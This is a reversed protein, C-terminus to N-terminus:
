RPLRVIPGPADGVAIRYRGPGPLTIKYRQTTGLRTTAVTRWRGDRKSQLKVPTGPGAGWADGTVRPRTIPVRAIRAGPSAGGNATKAPTTTTSPTTSPPAPETTTPPLEVTASAGNFTMWTDRLAFAAKLQDGTVVTNGGTGVVTAKVIRPSTGRQNVVIKRLSGKVLSGLRSTATAMSMRIPGWRHYPSLDDYPDDVGVLYPKPTAGKWVNEVNETRGGSTSFFYTTIPDGDYTMVEGATANAAKNTQPTEAAVGRYVQSRTDSYLDYGDNKGRETTIAYGRTAVAQAELAEAPWSPIAENGIVGAVYQELGVANIALLGGSGPRFELWGRYSGNPVGNGATGLLKVPEDASNTVQLPADFTAVRRGASNLLDVRSGHARAGYTRAPNLKKTGANTVNTFKPTSTQQLLVRIVDNTDTRGLETGQFYHQLIAVHDWGHEAYGAAGYQSMGIGHGFGAGNITLTSAAWAPTAALLAIITALLASRRMM